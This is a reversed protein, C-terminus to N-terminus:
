RLLTFSGKRKETKNTLYTVSVEYIYTGPEALKGGFYGDWGNEIDNSEFVKEGWRNFIKMEFLKVATSFVRFLDNAGDGNPSFANPIFIPFDDKVFVTIEKESKCGNADTATINYTITRIPNASFSSCNSCSLFNPPSVGYSVSDYNSSLEVQAKEGPLIIYLEQNSTINFAENPQAINASATATCGNADTVTLQYNGSPLKNLFSGSAGNSWTFLYSGSGGAAIATVSGNSEGYCAPTTQISATPNDFVRVPKLVVAVCNKDSTITLTVNFTGSTTYLYSPSSQLSSGTGDGFDWAQAVINGSSINSQNIFQVPSNYCADAATFNPQPLAYVVAMGSSSATCGYNSTVTLTVPYSGASSYTHQPNQLSSNNGDGFNWSHSQINGNAVTSQNIFSIPNNLCVSDNGFAAIPRPYVQVNRTTSDSCNHNSVVVLKVTFNGESAYTHAPSRQFSTNGDGFNWNWAAITGTSVSSLDSFATPANVCVAGANFNAVPKPYVQVPKETTDKCNVDSTAILQVLYTGAAGYIHQPNQITSTNGDKFNWSWSQISGNTITSADTFSTAGGLCINNATFDPVPLPYVTTTRTATDRCGQSSIVILSVNYSGAAAYIHQPSTQSSTNGDGFNWSRGSISGSSVTSNDVFISPTKRCVNAVNFEALPKPYVQVQKIVTDKCGRDTTAELAVPYTGSAAYSHSPNQVTSFSGDGLAWRWQVISGNSVLSGDTFQMANAFCVAPAVFDATPKPHVVASKTISDFCNHNTYAILIVSYSGASPFQQFPNQQTSTVGNGFNWSWQVISGNSVTSADSFRSPFGRCTDNVTFNVNPKPYVVVQKIISDGCGNSGQIILTTNFTGSSNYTHTPSVATSTNGDGFIWFNSLINGTTATSTNTFQVAKGVCENAATFNATVGPNVTVNRTVTNSCGNANTVTLSVPFSGHGTFSFSPNQNNSTNGGGFNWSWQIPNGTSADTFNVPNNECVTTNTFNATPNDQVTVQQTLSATCGSSSTVTLTVNYVGTSSYTKSPSTQNSTTADGFDWASSLTTSIPASSSTNIFNTPNGLCTANFSFSATPISVPQEAQPTIIYCNTQAIHTTGNAGPQMGSQQGTGPNGGAVSLPGAFNNERCWFLKIRGGGGGGGGEKTSSNGGNGGNATLSANGSLYDGQILIGGGAGGGAAEENSPSGTCHNANRGSVNISGNVAVDCGILSIAGGGTGTPPCDSGGGGSGMDIDTGTATGYAGGGNNTGGGRGGAGGYGGGGGGISGNGNSGAGPGAQGGYGLGVGNFNANFNIKRANLVVPQGQNMTVNGSVNIWDATTTGSINGGTLNVVNPFLANQNSAASAAPNGYNMYITITAGDAVNPVRIWIKTSVTNIGSEIWYDLYQGCNIYFRIDSGDPKMKGQSIPTSTNIFFPIQLNSITAGSQNTFSIPLVYSWGNFPCCVGTQAQLAHKSFFLLAFVAIITKQSFFKKM